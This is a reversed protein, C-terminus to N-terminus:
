FKKLTFIANLNLYVDPNDESFTIEDEGTFIPPDNVPHIKIYVIDEKVNDDTDEARLIITENVIETLQTNNHPTILINTDQVSATFYNSSYEISFTLNDGDPDSFRHAFDILFPM